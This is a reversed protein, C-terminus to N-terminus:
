VCLVSKGVNEGTMLGVFASPFNEIGKTVHERYKVKGEKLYGSMEEAYEGMHEATYKAVIFGEMKVAKAIAFFLNKIGYRKDEAVNYQSIAGCLVIRAGMNVNQFVADLTEGGVNDFYIDIGNPLHRKLAKDLDSEKKYNYADDFGFETKLLKVKEDSGASGVVRCGYVKALQGVVQGVAGAAATVFVQDGAKAKAILKLGVWATFGPMGLVGLYYSAPVQSADVKILDQGKPVVVYESFNLNGLVTDGVQFDPNDSLVVEAVVGGYIPEGKKYLGLGPLGEETMLERYYPDLSIYLLKVAVDNSDPQVVVDTETEEVRLDTDKPMGKPIAALVVQKHRVKGGEFQSSAM